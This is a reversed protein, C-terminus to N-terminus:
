GKRTWEIVPRGHLRLETGTNGCRECRLPVVAPFPLCASARPTAAVVEHSGCAPCTRDDARNLNM